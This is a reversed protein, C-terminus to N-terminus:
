DDWNPDTWHADLFAPDGRVSILGRVSWDIRRKLAIRLAADERFRMDCQVVCRCFWCAVFENRPDAAAVERIPTVKPLWRRFGCCACLRKQMGVPVASRELATLECSLYSDSVGCGRACPWPVLDQLMEVRTIQAQSMYTLGYDHVSRFPWSPREHFRQLVEGWRPRYRFQAAWFLLRDHENRYTAKIVWHICHGNTRQNGLEDPLRHLYPM